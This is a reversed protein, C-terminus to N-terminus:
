EKLKLNLKKLSTEVSELSKAGFKDLKMLEDRTYELLKGVTLIENQELVNFAREALKLDKISIKGVSEAVDDKEMENGSLILNFRESYNILIKVAEKLSDLPSKNGKTSIGIILKDFNVSEEFRMPEVHFSVKLVPSFYADIPIVTEPFDSEEVIEEELKYGKGRRVYISGKFYNRSSSITAIHLDPNLITVESSCKLDSAKVDKEGKVNFPLVTDDLGELSVILKKVNLIIEEVDEVVGEVTSFEHVVGDIAIGVPAVGEISSLLVRRLATGLTLGYGSELPGFSYKGYHEKEEEITFKVNDLNWM